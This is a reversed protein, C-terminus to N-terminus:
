KYKELLKSINEKMYSSRLKQWREYTPRDLDVHVIPYKYSITKPYHIEFAKITEEDINFQISWFSDELDTKIKVLEHLEFDRKQDPEMIYSFVDLLDIEHVM